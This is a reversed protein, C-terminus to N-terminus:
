KTRFTSLSTTLHRAPFTVRHQGYMNGCCMSMCVAAAIQLLLLTVAVNIVATIAVITKSHERLKDVILNREDTPVKHTTPRALFFSSRSNLDATEAVMLALTTLVEM